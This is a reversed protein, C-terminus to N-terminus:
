ARCARGAGVTSSLGGNRDLGYETVWAEEGTWREGEWSDEPEQEHYTSVHQESWM